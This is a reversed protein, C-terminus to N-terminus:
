SDMSIATDDLKGIIVSKYLHKVLLDKKKNNEKRFFFRILINFFQDGEDKFYDSVQFNSINVDFEKGFEIIFEVADAGYIGLDNQISTNENIIESDSVASQKIVFGKIKEFLQNNNEM